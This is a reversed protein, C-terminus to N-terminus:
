RVLEAFVSAGRASSVALAATRLVGDARRRELEAAIRSGIIKLVAEALAADAIPARDM